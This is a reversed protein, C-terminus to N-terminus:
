EESLLPAPSESSGSCASAGVRRAIARLADGSSPCRQDPIAGPAASGSLRAYREAPMGDLDQVGTSELVQVPAPPRPRGAQDVSAPRVIPCRLWPDGIVLPRVFPSSRALEQRPDPCEEATRQCLGPLKRLTVPPARDGFRKLGRWRWDAPCRSVPRYRHDGPEPTKERCALAPTVLRARGRPLCGALCETAAVRLYGGPEAHAVAFGDARALIKGGCVLSM